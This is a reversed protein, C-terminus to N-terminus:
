GVLNVQLEFHLHLLDTLPLCRSGAKKVVQQSLLHTEKLMSLPSVYVLTSLYHCNLTQLAQFLGQINHVQITLWTEHLYDEIIYPLKEQVKKEQLQGCLLASSHCVNGM